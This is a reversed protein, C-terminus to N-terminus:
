GGGSAGVVKSGGALAAMLYDGLFGGSSTGTGTSNITSGIFKDGGLGQLLSNIKGQLELPFQKIMNQFDTKQSAIRNSMDVNARTDSGERSTIDSLLGTGTFRAGRNGEQASQARGADAQGGSMAFNEADKLLGGYTSARGRSLEGETQGERLGFRGGRFAGNRAGDAAQAARVQGSQEDYDALVPDIIDKNFMGRYRDMYDAGSTGTLDYNVGDLLGKAGSYDVAPLNAAADWSKELDPTSTPTYTGAPASQLAGINSAADKYPTLLWDPVNPTTTATSTQKTRKKLSSM